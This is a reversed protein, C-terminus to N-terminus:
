RWPGIKAGLYRFADEPAIYPIRENTLEIKSDRVYWTDRESVVQFTQSKDGSISTGLGELYEQVM